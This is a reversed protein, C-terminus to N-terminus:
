SKAHPPTPIAIWTAASAPLATCQPRLEDDRRRQRHHFQALLPHGPGPLQSEFPTSARDTIGEYGENATLTVTYDGQTVPTAWPYEFTASATTTVARYTPNLSATLTFGSPSQIALTVTTIDTWGFPDSM